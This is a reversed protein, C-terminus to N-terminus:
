APWFRARRLSREARRRCIPGETGLVQLSALDVVSDPLVVFELYGARRVVAGSSNLAALCAPTGFHHEEIFLRGCESACM